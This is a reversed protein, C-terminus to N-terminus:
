KLPQVSFSNGEAPIGLNSLPSPQPHLCSAHTNQCLVATAGPEPFQQHVVSSQAWPSGKPVQGPCRFCLLHLCLMNFVLTLLPSMREQFHINPSVRQSTYSKWNRQSDLSSDSFGWFYFFPSRALRANPSWALNFRIQLCSPATLSDRTHLAISNGPHM